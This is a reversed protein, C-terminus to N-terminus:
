VQQAVITTVRASTRRVLGIWPTGIIARVGPASASGPSGSVSALPCRAPATPQALHYALAPALGPGRLGRRAHERCERKVTRVARQCTTSLPVRRNSSREHVGRAPCGSPGARGPRQSLGALCGLARARGDRPRPDIPILRNRSPPALDIPVGPDTGGGDLVPGVIPAALLTTPCTGVQHQRELRFLVAGSETARRGRRLRAAVCVLFRPRWLPKSGVRPSHFSETIPLRPSSLRQEDLRHDRRANRPSVDHRAPRLLAVSAKAM